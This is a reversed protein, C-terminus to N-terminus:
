AGALAGVIKQYTIIVKDGTTAGTLKVAGGAIVPAAWTAGKVETDGVTVTTVSDPKMVDVIASGTPIVFRGDLPASSDYQWVFSNLVGSSEDPGQAGTATRPGYFNNVGLGSTKEYAM